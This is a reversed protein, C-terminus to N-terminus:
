HYIEVETFACIKYFVFFLNFNVIYNRQGVCVSINYACRQRTNKLHILFVLFDFGIHLHYAFSHQCEVHLNYARM